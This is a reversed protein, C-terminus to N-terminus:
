APLNPNEVEIEWHVRHCEPCVFERLGTLALAEERPTGESQELNNLMAIRVVLSTAEDIDEPGDAVGRNWEETPIVCDITPRDVCKM